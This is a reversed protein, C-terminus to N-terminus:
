CSGLKHTDRSSHRSMDLGENTVTGLVEEAPSPLRRLEQNGNIAHIILIPKGSARAYAVVEGTGGVGQAEQGDWVAILVDCQDVIYRGVARYAQHRDALPPLDVVLDAQALLRSFERRSTESSFQSLYIPLPMPLPVILKGGAQSLGYEAVLRDTGEALPSIIILSHNPFAGLLLNFAQAVGERIKDLDSLLRHGTVGIRYIAKETEKQEDM